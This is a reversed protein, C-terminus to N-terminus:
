FQGDEAGEFLRKRYTESKDPRESLVYTRKSNYEGRISAIGIPWQGIYMRTLEPFRTSYLAAEILMEECHKKEETTLHPDSKPSWQPGLGQFLYFNNSGISLSGGFSYSDYSDRTFSLTKLSTLKALTHRLLVHNPRWDYVHGTDWQYRTQDGASLQLQQLSTISAIIKINALTWYSEKAILSLSTLRSFEDSLTPLM